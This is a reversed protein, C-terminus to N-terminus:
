MITNKLSSDGFFGSRFDCFTDGSVTLFDEFFVAFVEGNDFVGFADTFFSDEDGATLVGFAADIFFSAADSVTFFSDGSFM